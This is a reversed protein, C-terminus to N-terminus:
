RRKPDGRVLLDWSRATREVSQSLGMQIQKPNLTILTGVVSSSLSWAAFRHMM